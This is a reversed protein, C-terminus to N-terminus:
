RATLYSLPNLYSEYSALPMTYVGCGPVHSQYTSIEVGQSAVVGFHLHPGTAYGTQGTYGIVQGQTIAQGAAVKQLSLHGYLTSLGLGTHNLMIWKGYSAGRCTPDTDGVGAVTGDAPALVPTGIPAALDIGNHGKGKYIIPNSMAFSTNGFYQTIVVKALPWALVGSGVGPLLGKNINTKLNAELKNIEAQVQAKRAQSAALLKQYNSEQDKTDALLKAKAVQNQAAIKQQDTLRSTLVTLNNKEQTTADQKVELSATLDHLQNINQQVSSQLRRFRGIEVLGDSLNEQALFALAPDAQELRNLERLTEALHDQSTGIETKKQGIELGLKKLNATAAAIKKQTIALQDTLQKKMLDLKAIESQLSGATKQKTAIQNQYNAIEAELKAIEAQYSTMQGQLQDVTQAQAVFSGTMLLSTGAIILSLSYIKLM